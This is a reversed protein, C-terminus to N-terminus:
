GEVEHDAGPEPHVVHCMRLANLCSTMGCARQRPPFQLCYRQGEPPSRDPLLAIGAAGLREEPSLDRRVAAAALATALGRHAATLFSHRSAEMWNTQDIASIRIPHGADRAIQTAHM